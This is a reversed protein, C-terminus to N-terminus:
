VRERCSARGIKGDGNLWERDTLDPGLNAVGKGKPGHCVYCLAGGVKGHFVSDGLAITAPPAAQESAGQTGAMLTVTVAVFLGRTFTM